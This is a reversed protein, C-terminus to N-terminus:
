PTATRKPTSTKREEHAMVNLRYRGLEEKKYLNALEKIYDTMARKNCKYAEVPYTNLFLQMEPYCRAQSMHNGDIIEHVCKM